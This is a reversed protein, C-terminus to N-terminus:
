QRICTLCCYSSYSVDSNVNRTFKLCSVTRFTERRLWVTSYSWWPVAAASKCLPLYLLVALHFCGNFFLLTQTASASTSLLFSIITCRSSRCPPLSHLEQFPNENHCASHRGRLFPFASVAYYFQFWQFLVASAEWCGSLRTPLERLHWRVGRTM